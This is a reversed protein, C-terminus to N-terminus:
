KSKTVSSHAEFASSRERTGLHALITWFPNKSGKGTVPEPILQSGIKALSDHSLGSPLKQPPHHATVLGDSLGERPFNVAM